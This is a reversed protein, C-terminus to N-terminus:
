SCERCLHCVKSLGNPINSGAVRQKLCDGKVTLRLDQLTLHLQSNTDTNLDCQNFCIQELYRFLLESGFTYGQQGSALSIYLSEFIGGQSWCLQTSTNGDLLLYFLRTKNSLKGDNDLVVASFNLDLVVMILSLFKTRNKCSDQTDKIINFAFYFSDNDYM